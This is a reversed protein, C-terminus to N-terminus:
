KWVASEPQWVGSAVGESVPKLFAAVRAIVEAFNEPTNLSPNASLFRNWGQQLSPTAAFEPAFLYSADKLSTDRHEFTARFAETLTAAELQERQAIIYM